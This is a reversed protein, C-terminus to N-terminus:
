KRKKSVVLAGGAIVAVGAVVAIGEVGTDPSPKEGETTAEGGTTADAGTEADAGTSADVDSGAPAGLGELTFEVALSETPYAGSYAGIEANWINVLEVTLYPDTESVYFSDTTYTKVGDVIVSAEKITVTGDNPIDTSVFILNFGSAEDVSWDFGSASVTYTGDTTIDVDTYDADFVYGEIDWDFNDVLEPWTEDSNGGWMIVKNFYDTEKGYSEDQWNNHFSYSTTQFGIYGTYASATVAAFSAVMAATGIAALIRSTKM